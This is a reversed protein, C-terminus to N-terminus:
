VDDLMGLLKGVQLDPQKASHALACEIPNSSPNHNKFEALRAGTLVCRIFHTTEKADKAAKERRSKLHLFLSCCRDWLEFTWAELHVEVDDFMVFCFNLLKTDNRMTENYRLRASASQAPM